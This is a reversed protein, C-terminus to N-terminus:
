KGGRRQNAQLTLWFYGSLSFPALDGGTGGTKSCSDKQEATESFQLLSKWLSHCGNNTVLGHPKVMMRGWFGGHISSQSVLESCCSPFLIVSSVPVGSVEGAGVWHTKENYGSYDNSVFSIM